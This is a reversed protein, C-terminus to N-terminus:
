EIGCELQNAVSLKYVQKYCDAYVLIGRYGEAYGAYGADTWVQGCRGCRRKKVHPHTGWLDAPRGRAPFGAQTHMYLTCNLIITYNKRVYEIKRIGM